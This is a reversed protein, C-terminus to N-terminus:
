FAAAILAIFIIVILIGFVAAGFLERTMGRRQNSEYAQWEKQVARRELQYAEEYIGTKNTQTRM